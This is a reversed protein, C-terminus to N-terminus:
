CCFVLHGVVLIVTGIWPNREAWSIIMFTMEAVNTHARYGFVCSIVGVVSKLPHDLSILQVFLMYKQLDVTLSSFVGGELVERDLVQVIDVLNNRLQMKVIYVRLLPAHQVDELGDHALEDAYVVM